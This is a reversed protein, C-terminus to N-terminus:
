KMFSNYLINEFIYIDILILQFRTQLVFNSAFKYYISYQYISFCKWGLPVKLDGQPAILIM